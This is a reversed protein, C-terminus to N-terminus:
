GLPSCRQRTSDRTTRTPSRGAVMEPGGGGAGRHLRRPYPSTVLLLASGAQLLGRPVIARTSLPPRTVSAEDM